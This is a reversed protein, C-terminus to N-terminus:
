GDRGGGAFIEYSDALAKLGPLVRGSLFYLLAGGGTSIHGVRGRLNDPLENLIANFHGGGFITFARSRLAEAVLARTGRRFRPDEIVGAPGRMVVIKARRIERSYYEITAPGIDKPAGVIRNYDVVEVSGNIEALYDLPTKIVTERAALQRAEEIVKEGAKEVIIKEAEGVSYGQALLFLLSVLGTTLISDAVESDVLYRIIKVADKLKAGGLVFVKPREEKSVARGLARVEKEMLRGAASPLVLPFGVISAQSRHSTAFADNVYYDFLPALTSVMIGKAHVEPPAEVYDESVLRSNDLLLVNGPELNKIQRRAEPGIVDDVFDVPFGLLQSLREAHKALRTFDGSAPRGQHSLLVVSAGREVLEKITPAHARMRTDDLIEGNKGLPSNIDIRVLIRKNRVNLDSLDLLRRGGYELVM